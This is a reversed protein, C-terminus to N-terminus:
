QDSAFYARIMQFYTVVFFVSFTCPLVICFLLPFSGVVFNMRMRRKSFEKKRTKMASNNEEPM